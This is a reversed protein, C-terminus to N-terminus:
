SQTNIISLPDDGSAIRELQEDTLQSVDININKILQREVFGRDWAQTKLFFILLTDSTAIREHLMKVARDKQSERADNLAQQAYASEDIRAQVTHRHVKLHRAIDSVNGGFKEILPLVDEILIKKGNNPM